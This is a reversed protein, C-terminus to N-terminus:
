VAEAFSPNPAISIPAEPEEGLDFESVFGTIDISVHGCTVCRRRLVGASTGEDWEHEHQRGRRKQTARPALEEIFEVEGVSAEAPITDRAEEIRQRLWGRRTSGDDAQDGSGIAFRGPEDPTFYVQEDGLSLLFRRGSRQVTMKSLPWSWAESEFSVIEVREHTLYLKVRFGADGSSAVDLRGPYSQM